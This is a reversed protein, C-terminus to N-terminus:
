KTRIFFLEDLLASLAKEKEEISLQITDKATSLSNANDSTDTKEEKKTICNGEGNGTDDISMDSRSSTAQARVNSDMEDPNTSLPSSNNLKAWTIMSKKLVCEECFWDDAPIIWLSVNQMTFMRAVM